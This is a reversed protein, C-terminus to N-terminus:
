WVSGLHRATRRMSGNRKETLIYMNTGQQGKVVCEGGAGGARRVNGIGSRREKGQIFSIRKNRGVRDPKFIVTLKPLPRGM